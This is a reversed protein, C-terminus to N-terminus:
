GVERKGTVVEYILSRKYDSLREILARRKALDANIAACKADLFAAIERQEVLPPFCLKLKELTRMGINQQTGYNWALEIQKQYADSQLFYFLYQYDYTDNCRFVALPSLITFIKDTDVLAVRGTTAGSKIMYVDHIEPVYKKCCERYYEESIYGRVHNFDIRGNGCSVAEASVFPIGDDFLEPTEHPGDTIPMSLAYLTKGVSWTEPIEGIWEVGSDKRAVEPHLGKTVTETILSQKYSDIKEILYETKRITADIASCSKDLFAVIARQQEISWMVLPISMIKEKTFHPITAKNCVYDVYNKQVLMGIYYMFYRTDYADSVARIRHLSNQFCINRVDTGDPITAAGGAGAGGEVVLLDGEELSYATQEKPSFWMKKLDSFDVDNFHVDKACIYSLKQDEPNSPSSCVMKGLVSSFALGARMISCEEPIEGIWAIGSDKMKRM